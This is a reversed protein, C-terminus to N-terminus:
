QAKSSVLREVEQISQQLVQKQFGQDQLQKQINAIVSEALQKQERQRVSAEYRVWSDLVAKAEHAFDVKQQQEFVRAELRATEKSVEFLKKTIGVVDKMENVSSIRSQVAETHNTRASKLVDKITNVKQQAWERYAPGGAKAIGWVLAAFSALIVSEENVVYLENSIAVTALAAGATLIGTKSVMSTGPLADIISNARTKPDPRNDSAYRVSLPAVSRVSPLAAALPRAAGIRKAALRSMAM